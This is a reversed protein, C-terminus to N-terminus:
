ERTINARDASHVTFVSPVNAFRDRCSEDVALRLAEVAESRVLAIACGGFGGGTMRAGYVGDVSLAASVV